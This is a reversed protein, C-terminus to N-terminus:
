SEGVADGHHVFAPDYRDQGGGFSGAFVEAQEHGADGAFLGGWDRRSILRFVFSSLESHGAKTRRREDLDAVDGQRGPVCLDFGGWDRATDCDDDCDTIITWDYCSRMVLLGCRPLGGEASNYRSYRIHWLTRRYM